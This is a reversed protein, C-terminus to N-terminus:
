KNESMGEKVILVFLVFQIFVVISYIFPVPFLTSIKFSSIIYVGLASILMLYCTQVALSIGANEPFIRLCFAIINGFIFGLGVNFIVIPLTLTWLTLGSIFVLFWQIGIALAMIAFGYTVLTEISFKFLLSRNLLTGILYSCGVALASYGYIISSYGLNDQVLFSGITPYILQEVQVLGLIIIGALLRKHKLVQGYSRFTKALSSSDAKILSERVFFILTLEILIAILVYAYFNAEWGLYYQLYGGLFPAIMLGFGYAVTTYLIAVNFQKGKFCDVIIARSGISCTATLLGQFFRIVMLQTITTVFPAYLSILIFIFLAPVM